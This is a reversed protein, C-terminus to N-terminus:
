KAWSHSTAAAIASSNPRPDSLFVRSNDPVPRFKTGYQHKILRQPVWFPSTHHTSGDFGIIGYLGSARLTQLRQLQRVSGEELAMGAYFIPGVLTGFAPVRFTPDNALVGIGLRTM